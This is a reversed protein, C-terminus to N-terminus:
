KNEDDSNRLPQQTHLLADAQNEAAQRRKNAAHNKKSGPYTAEAGLTPEASYSEQRRLRRSGIAHQNVVRPISVRNDVSIIRNEDRPSTAKLAGTVAASCSTM